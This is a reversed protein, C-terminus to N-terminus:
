KNSGSSSSCVRKGAVCGSSSRGPASFSYLSNGNTCAYYRTSTTYGSNKTTQVYNSETCTPTASCGSCTPNRKEEEEKKRKEEAIRAAEAEEAKRKEEALRAAEEAKRKEEALRAEEEARAQAATKAVCNASELITTGNVCRINLTGATTPYGDMNRMTPQAATCDFNAAQGNNLRGVTLRSKGLDNPSDFVTNLLLVSDRCNANGSGTNVPSTPAVPENKTTSSTTAPTDQQYRYEYRNGSKVRSFGTESIVAIVFLLLVGSALKFHTQRKM